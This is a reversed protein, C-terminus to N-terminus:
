FNSDGVELLEIKKPNKPNVRTRGILIPNTEGNKAQKYSNLDYIEGIKPNTEDTNKIVYKVGQIKIIKGRWAIKKINQLRFVIKKRLLIILNILFYMLHLSGFTYCMIGEKNSKQHLNCDISTEKIANLLSNNTNKKINSIEFLTEDSTLISTRDIKSKDSNSNILARSLIPLREEKTKAEKDGNIQIDTFTM